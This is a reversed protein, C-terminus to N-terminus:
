RNQRSFIAIRFLGAYVEMAKSNWIDGHDKILEKECQLIWYSSRRRAEIIKHGDFLEEEDGEPSRDLKWSKPKQARILMPDSEALNLNERLPNACQDTELPRLWTNILLPNHGPTYKYFISQHIPHGDELLDPYTRQMSPFLHSLSNAIRHAVRTAKDSKSTLSFVLPINEGINTDASTLFDRFQKAYISPAASNVLLIADFPSIRSLDVPDDAQFWPLEMSVGGTIANSLVQETVLAGFSHGIVVTRNGPATKAVKAYTYLARAMGVGSAKHEAMSKVDWYTIQNVCWHVWSLFRPVRSSWDKSILRKDPYGDINLESCSWDIKPRYLSGQWSHYVGHVRYNEDPHLEALAKALQSLFRNFRVVDMSQSNNKWGHTYIVLILQTNEPKGLKRIKSWCDKHQDFNLFDGRGDFEVFSCSHRGDESEIYYSREPADPDIEPRTSKGSSTRDFFMVVSGLVLVGIIVLFAVWHLLLWGASLLLIVLLLFIFQFM